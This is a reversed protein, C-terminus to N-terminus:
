DRGPEVDKPASESAPVAALPIRLFLTTGRRPASELEVTGGIAAAREQIGALGMGRRRIEHDEPDFGSGDDEVILLLDEARREFIVSVQQAHAHKAVNNLAEQVIRYLNSEIEGPLRADDRSTHHVSARVGNAASWQRAFEALAAEFGVDDLAPPRLEWALTDVDRDLRSVIEEVHDFRQSREDADATDRLTALALRLTTLQQGLQDHLNRALRRREHEQVNVLRDLLAKVREETSIRVEVERALLGSKRQEAQYAAATDAELRHEATVDLMATLLRVATATTDVRAVLRVRRQTKTNLTLEVTGPRTPDGRMRHLFQRMRKRGDTQLLNFVPLGVILERRHECLEAAMLNAELILGQENLTLYGIPASDYLVAYRDRAEELEAQARSLQENQVTLEESHVHLEHLLAKVQEARDRASTATGAQPRAPRRQRKSM